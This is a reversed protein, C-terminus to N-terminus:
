KQFPFQLSELLLVNEPRPTKFVINVQIGFNVSADFGVAPFINANAIGLSYSSFNKSFSSKKVGKFDRSRPLAIYVLNLIFEMAKKGRLTVVIGVVDGTRTKFNAIAKKAQTKKPKQNTMKLIYNEVDQIQKTDFKEKALGINICVKEVKPLKFTNNDNLTNSIKSTINSTFSDYSLALSQQAINASM